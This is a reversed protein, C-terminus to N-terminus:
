YHGPASGAIQVRRLEEVYRSGLHECMTQAIDSVQRRWDYESARRRRGAILEPSNEEVSLCRAIAESWEEATRAIKVVDRYMNISPIPVGVVPRGTALYENIKLPYIFKSYGDVVYCLTGVDFHQAYAPLEEKHKGGLFHVNSKKQVRELLGEIASVNRMPGVFVFSWEPHLEALKIYIEFDLQEKIIGMYGIRPRPINSLDAPESAPSSFAEYDVGNPVYRTNRNLRGKKEMLAPSHIFVQDVRHILASEEESIDQETSSFSYEDDIHYFSFEFNILDLASGFEPRWIYLLIRSCGREKLIAAAQRLREREMLRAVVRPRYLFPLWRGPTYVLLSGAEELASKFAHNSKRLWYDRWGDPSNCWVVRFYRTLRTLVQQRVQWLEGWRGPVLALVGVDPFLPGDPNNNATRAATTPVKM